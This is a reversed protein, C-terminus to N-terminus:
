RTRCGGGTMLGICDLWSRCLSCVEADEAGYWDVLVTEPGYVDDGEALLATHEDSRANGLTNLKWRM